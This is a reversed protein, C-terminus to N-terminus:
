ATKKKILIKKKPPAPTAEVVPATPVTPVTPQAPEAVKKKLQIKKKEPQPVPQANPQVVVKPEAIPEAIKPEAVKPEVVNPEVVNPEVVKPQVANVAKVAKVAKKKVPAAKVAQLPESLESAIPKKFVLTTNLFSYKKEDETMGRAARELKGGKKLAEKHYKMFSAHEVLELGQKEFKTIITFPDVLTEVIESGISEMFVKIQNESIRKISWILKGDKGYGRAQDNKDLTMNVEHGDLCTLMVHGGPKLFRMVNTIFNDLTREEGCFYHVAFQCSVVDFGGHKLLKECVFKDDENTLTRLLQEDIVKSADMTGFVFTKDKARDTQLVRAYAGDVPNEINDRAKDFGYVTTVSTDMWKHLDGAKGCAIDLLTKAKGAINQILVRKVGNNHFEMMDRSSFRDRSMTRQYYIDDFQPVDKMTIRTKGTVIDETVPYMISRWVNMATVIDNPTTKDSRVRLPTWYQQVHKAKKADNKAHTYSFELIANDEILDGNKATMGEEAYFLSLGSDVEDMPTFEKLGYSHSGSPRQMTGMIFERPKIPTWKAANFGVYLKYVVAVKGNTLVVKKERGQDDLHKKIQFDITNEHPPKWKFAKNWTGSSTTTDGPYEGGVSTLAPTYILGDIRYPFMNAHIKQILGQSETFIADSGQGHYFTKTILQVGTKDFASATQKEFEQSYEIRSQHKQKPHVLPQTRVDVGGVFYADFIAFVKMPAGNRDRTIYEGDFVSNFYKKNVGTVALTEVQLTGSILHCTGKADVYLLYREGDAKETVTYNQLITNVEINDLAVNQLELTVPQPGIFLTRSRKEIDMPDFKPKWLKLYERLIKQDV